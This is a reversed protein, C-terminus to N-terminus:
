PSLLLRDVTCVPLAKAHHFRAFMISTLIPIKMDDQPLMSATVLQSTRTDTVPVPQQSRNKHSQCVTSLDISHHAYNFSHSVLSRLVCVSCKTRKTETKITLTATSVRRFGLPVSLCHSTRMAPCLPSVDRLIPLLQCLTSSHSCSTDDVCKVLSM